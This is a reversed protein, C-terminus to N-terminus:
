LQTFEKPDTFKTNGHELEAKKKFIKHFDAKSNGQEKYTCYRFSGRTTINSTCWISININREPGEFHM